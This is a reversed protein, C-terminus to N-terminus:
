FGINEHQDLRLPDFKHSSSIQVSCLAVMHQHLVGVPRWKLKCFFFGWSKGGVRGGPSRREDEKLTGDSLSMLWDSAIASCTEVSAAFCAQSEGRLSILSPLPDSDRRPDRAREARAPVHGLSKNRCWVKRAKRSRHSQMSLREQHRGPLASTRLCQSTM